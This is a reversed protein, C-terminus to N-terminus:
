VTIVSVEDVAAELETLLCDTTCSASHQSHLLLSVSGCLLLVQKQKRVSDTSSPYEPIQPPNQELQSSLDGLVISGSEGEGEGEGECLAKIVDVLGRCSVDVEVAGAKGPGGM